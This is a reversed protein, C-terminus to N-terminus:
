LKEVWSFFANLYPQLREAMLSLLEDYCRENYGMRQILYKEDTSITSYGEGMGGYSWVFKVEDIKKPYYLIRCDGKGITFAEEYYAYQVNQGEAWIRFREGLANDRLAQITDGADIADQHSSLIINVREWFHERAMEYANKKQEAIMKGHREITDLNRVAM